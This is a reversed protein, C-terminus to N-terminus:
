LKQPETQSLCIQQHGSVQNIRFQGTIFVTNHFFLSHNWNKVFYFEWKVLDRPLCNHWLYALTYNIFSNFGHLAFHIWVSIDGHVCKCITKEGPHESFLLSSLCFPSAECWPFQDLDFDNLNGILWSKFQWTPFGSKFLQNEDQKANTSGVYKELYINIRM